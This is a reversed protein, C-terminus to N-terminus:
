SVAWVCPLVRGEPLYRREIEQIQGGLALIGPLHQGKVARPDPEGVGVPAVLLLYVDVPEPSLVAEELDHDIPELIAASGPASQAPVQPIPAAAGPQSELRQLPRAGEDSALSVVGLLVCGLIALALISRMTM